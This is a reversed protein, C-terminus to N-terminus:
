PKRLCQTSPRGWHWRGDQYSREEVDVRFQAISLLTGFCIDDSPTTAGEEQLRESFARMVWAPIDKRRGPYIFGFLILYCYLVRWLWGFRALLRSWDLDAAHTHLLHAIDAGDYREREMVFAKSWIAEEVPCVQAPFGLVEADLAHEFWSDDVMGVGKGSGFIVDVFLEGCFGKALWAPDHVETRWGHAALCALARPCDGPRVFLDLDKTHRAIGTHIRFAYAGGVLFPIRGDRLHNMAERYVATITPDDPAYIPPDTAMSLNRNSLGSRGVLPYSPLVQAFEIGSPM